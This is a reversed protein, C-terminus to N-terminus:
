CANAIMHRIYGYNRRYDDQDQYGKGDCQYCPGSKPPTKVSGDVEFVIGGWWYVGTGRCKECKTTAMRAAAVWEAPTASAARDGLRGRVAKMWEARTAGSGSIHRLKRFEDRAQDDTMTGTETMM